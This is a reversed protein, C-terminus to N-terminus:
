GEAHQLTAVDAARMTREVAAALDRASFPKHLTSYGRDAWPRLADNEVYGTVFLIPAEPWLKTVEGALQSGNMRPMAFDILLLDFHRDGAQVQSALIQLAEAGGAADVVDHGLEELMARTSLRVSADDDVLLIRCSRPPAIDAVPKMVVAVPASEAKRLFLNVTTGSGAASDIVLAGGLDRVFGYVMSLGLGTGGGPGKTTFFPEHAHARVDESMGVGTDAVQVCVYDGPALSLRGDGAAVTRTRFILDGGNPMADRANVALNLLALELQALDALAPGVVGTDYRLRISPGLTRRLLDDMGRIVANMDVPQVAVDNKRSFSLMQATLKAGREAAETATQLLRATGPNTERRQALELSGLIVALLNNFDHAVGGTLRGLAEMKQGQRALAEVQRRRETQEVLQRLAAHETAARRRVARETVLLLLSLLIACAAMIAAHIGWTTLLVSRSISFGVLLPLDHVRRVGAIREAGDVVSRGGYLVLDGGAGAARMMANSAPLLHLMTPPSPVRVLVAGDTRVLVAASAHPRRLITGYFTEFYQQSITISVVGDFRGDRVRRRSLIFGKTGSMADPLPASIVVGDTNRAKTDAFYDANRLDYRPMPYARSSAALTGTPDVLFVAEIQPLERELRLLVAHTRPSAAIEAWDQGAIQDLVRTLVLDATEVMTQAHEALVGTTAAVEDRMRESEVQYDIWALGGFLAAPFVVCAVQLPTVVRRWSSVPAPSLARAEPM